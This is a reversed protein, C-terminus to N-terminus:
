APPLDSRRLKGSTTRPLVRVLILERPAKYGALHERVLARLEDLSPPDGPDVPVIWAGVHSSWERDPRGAVAVDAVKAHRRLVEEVEDPWVTEAGTRIADDARGHVVLTGDRELSGLDGTRLWGDITFAAATAAPDLRYGEMLTPGRVEIASGEGIRVETGGLPTGDYVVGGCTETLGYTSVLTGGLSTAADRLESALGDGGVLLVGFRSLDVRAEVLRRIMTPVLAVHAAEPADLLLRDVDFREHVVLPAGFRRARLLVLLGGVHAPTLCCVWPDDERVGGAPHLQRLAALSLEAASALAAAPLEALKPAGTAGSSGVVAWSREPDAPIGEAFLVTDDQSILRTPRARDVIRRREGATLRHDIPLFPVGRAAHEEVIGVWRPGPPVDYAVLESPGLGPQATADV